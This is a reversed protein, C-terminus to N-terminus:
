AGIPSHNFQGADRVAEDWTPRRQEAGDSGPNGNCQENKERGSLPSLNTAGVLVVLVGGKVPPAVESTLVSLGMQKDLFGYM